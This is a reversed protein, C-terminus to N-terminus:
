VNHSNILLSATCYSVLLNLAYRSRYTSFKSTLFVIVVSAPSYTQACGATWWVTPCRPRIATTPTTQSNSDNKGRSAACLASQQRLIDTQGDCAPITSFRSFMYDFKKVKPYGCWELKEYWVVPVELPPTSHLPYSFIAIKSL